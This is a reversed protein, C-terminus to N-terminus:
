DPLPRGARVRTGCMLDHVARGDARWLAAAFWAACLAAGLVPISLALAGPVLLKGAVERALAQLPGGAPEVDLGLLRHGPTPWRRWGLVAHLVCAIVLGPALLAGCLALMQGTSPRDTLAQVQADSMGALVSLAALLSAPAALAALVVLDVM